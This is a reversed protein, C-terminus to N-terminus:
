LIHDRARQRAFVVATGAGASAAEAANESAHQVFLGAARLRALPNAADRVACCRSNASYYNLLTRTIEPPAWLPDAAALGPAFCRSSRGRAWGGLVAPVAAATASGVGSLESANFYREFVAGSNM